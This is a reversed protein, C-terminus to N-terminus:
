IRAIEEMKTMDRINKYTKLSFLIYSSQQQAVIENQLIEIMLSAAKRPM